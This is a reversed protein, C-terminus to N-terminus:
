GRPWQLECLANNAQKYNPSYGWATAQKACGPFANNFLGTTRICSFYNITDTSVYVFDNQYNTSYKSKAIKDSFM